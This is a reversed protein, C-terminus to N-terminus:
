LGYDRCIQCNKVHEMLVEDVSLDTVSCSCKAKAMEKEMWNCGGVFDYITRAGIYAINKTHWGRDGCKCKLIATKPDYGSEDPQVIHGGWAALDPM